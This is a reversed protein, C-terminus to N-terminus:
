ESLSLRMKIHPLGADMFAEGEEEFGFIRYFPVAQVQADVDVSPYGQARAHSLLAEVIATGVKQNRWTPLVAIRGIHGDAKIRGCGIAQGDLSLALAHRCTEDRGDWELDEPIGQEEVFVVQRVSKLLPEGDRWSILSVTFTNSM